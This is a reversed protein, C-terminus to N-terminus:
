APGTITGFPTAHERAHGDGFVASPRWTWSLAIAGVDVPHEIKGRRLFAFAAAPVIDAALLL